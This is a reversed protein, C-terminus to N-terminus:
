RRYFCLVFFLFKLLPIELILHDVQETITVLVWTRETELSDAGEESRKCPLQWQGPTIKVNFINQPPLHVKTSKERLTSEKYQFESKENGLIQDCAGILGITLLPLSIVRASKTQAPILTSSDVVTDLDHVKSSINSDFARIDLTFLALYLAGKM